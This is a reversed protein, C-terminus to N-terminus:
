PAGRKRLYFFPLAKENVNNRETMTDTDQIHACIMPRM